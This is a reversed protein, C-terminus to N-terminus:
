PTLIKELYRAIDNYTVYIILPVLILLGVQQLLIQLRITLPKRRIGEVLLVVMLGGDLVPIPFFNIIGLNVSLIALFELLDKFGSKAQQGIMQTIGVPGALNDMSVERVILKKITVFIIQSWFWTSEAGLKVSTLLGVKERGVEVFTNRSDHTIGIYGEGSFPNAFPKLISIFPQERLVTVTMVQHVNSGKIKYLMRKWFPLPTTTVTQIKDGVLFGTNFAESKDIVATISKTEDMTLGIHELKDMEKQALFKLQFPKRRIIRFALPQEAKKAVIARMETWQEIKRDGIAIIEDGPLLPLRAEAAPYDEHVKGVLPKMFPSIGVRGIKTGEEDVQQGKPTLSLNITKKNRKVQCTVTQDPSRTLLNHFSDWSELIKGNAKEVVDSRQFVQYEPMDEDIVGIKVESHYVPYGWLYAVLVFIVLALVINMISGASAILMRQWWTKSPFEWPEGTLSQMEDEDPIDFQGAMKVYGGLPIASVRYDTDGKKFGILRPGFGLSFAEVRVGVMKAVIFHGLEHVFILIGFFLIIEILLM